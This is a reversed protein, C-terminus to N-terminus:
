KGLNKASKFVGFVCQNKILENNIVCFLFSLM